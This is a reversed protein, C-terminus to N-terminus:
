IEFILFTYVFLFFFLRVYDETGHMILVPRNDTTLTALLKKDMQHTLIAHLQSLTGKQNITTNNLIIM